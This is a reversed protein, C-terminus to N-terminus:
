SGLIYLILHYGLLLIVIEKLTFPNIFFHYIGISISFIILCILEKIIFRTLYPHHLIWLKLRRM